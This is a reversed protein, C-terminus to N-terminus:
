RPGVATSGQCPSDPQKLNHDGSLWEGLRFRQGGNTLRYCGLVTEGPAQASADWWIEMGDKIYSFNGPSFYAAPKYPTSSGNPPIAHMGKDLSEPSLRPGAAQIGYFLMALSDYVASAERDPEPCSPCAERYAQYWPQEVVGKRRYDFSVGFARSWQTPEFNRAAISSDTSYTFNSGAILWEPFWGAQNANATALTLNGSGFVIATTAGAARMQTAPVATSVTLDESITVKLDCQNQLQADLRDQFGKDAAYFAFRRPDTQNTGPGAYRAPRGALKLCIYSAVISSQDDYDPKFTILFPAFDQQSKRLVGPLVTTLVKRRANERNLGDTFNRGDGVEAFPNKKSDMDIAATTAQNTTTGSTYFQWMHVKRGYTQYRENFYRMYAKCGVDIATDQANPALACDVFQGAPGNNTFLVVTVEGRTVGKTTAGFNDGDFFAVCPPSLPDETQRPPSGVCRKLTPRSQKPASAEPAKRSAGGRGTGFGLGGSQASGLDSIDSRGDGAGPVPAFEALTTPGSQPVNLASPLLIALAAAAGLFALAPYRRFPRIGRTSRKNSVM